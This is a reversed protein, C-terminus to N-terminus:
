LWLFDTPAELEVSAVEKAWGEEEKGIWEFIKVGGGNAGGVILYKGDKSFQMGRIHNLGTRM